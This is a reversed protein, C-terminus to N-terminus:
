AITIAVPIDPDYLPSSTSTIESIVLLLALCGQLVGQSTATPPFPVQVDMM